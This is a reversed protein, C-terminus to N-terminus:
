ASFNLPKNKSNRECIPLQREHSSALPWHGIAKHTTGPPPDTRGM